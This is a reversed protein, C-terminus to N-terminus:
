SNKLVQSHLKHAPNVSLSRVCRRLYFFVCINSYIVSLAFLKYVSVLVVRPRCGPPPIRLVSNLIEEFPVPCFVYLLLLQSCTLKSCIFMYFSVSVHLIQVFCTFGFVSNFM